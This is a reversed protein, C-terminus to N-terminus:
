SSPKQLLPQLNSPPQIPLPRGAGSGSTFAAPAVSGGVQSVPQAPPASYLQVTPSGFTFNSHDGNREPVRSGMRLIAVPRGMGFAAEVPDQDPFVEFYNQEGGRGKAYPLATDPDEVYIVRTVFDGAAAMRLEKETLEVPIPFRQKSGQPPYLRDILEITPYVVYDGRVETVEFRYVKGIQLGVLLQGQNGASFTGAFAPAVRTTKPADIRVPQTHGRRHKSGLLQRQGIAGPPENPGYLGHGTWKQASVPSACVLSAIAIAALAVWNTTQGAGRRESPCFLDLFCDFM